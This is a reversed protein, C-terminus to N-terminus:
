VCEAPKCLRFYLIELSIFTMDGTMDTYHFTNHVSNMLADIKIPLIQHTSNKLTIEMGM